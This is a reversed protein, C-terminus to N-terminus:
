IQGSRLRSYMYFDAPAGRAMRYRRLLGEKEFRCRELLAISPQNTTMVVAQVRHLRATDFAWELVADVARHVIGRRWYARSLDYVVEGNWHVSSLWSFGCTGILVDDDSRAIAWRCSTGTSYEGITRQVVADIADFDVAGWSTNRTVEPDSLYNSWDRADSRRM